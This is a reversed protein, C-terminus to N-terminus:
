YLYNVAVADKLGAAPVHEVKFRAPSAGKLGLYIKIANMRNDDLTSLDDKSVHFTLLAKYEPTRKLTSAITNLQDVVGKSLVAQGANFELFIREKSLIDYGRPTEINEALSTSVVTGANKQLPTPPKVLDYGAMYGDANGVFAAIKGDQSLEVEVPNSNYLIVTEKQATM